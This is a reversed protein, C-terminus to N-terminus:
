GNKQPYLADIRTFPIAETDIYQNTHKVYSTWRVGYDTVEMTDGDTRLLVLGDADEDFGDIGMHGAIDIGTEEFQDLIESSTREGHEESSIYNCGYDFTEINYVSPNEKKM